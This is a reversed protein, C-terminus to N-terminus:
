FTSFFSHHLLQGTSFNYVDFTIHTSLLMTRGGDSTHDLLSKLFNRRAIPDLSSVTVALVQEIIQRYIPVGFPAHVTFSMEKPHM